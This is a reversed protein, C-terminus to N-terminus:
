LQATQRVPRVRLLRLAECRKSDDGVVGLAARLENQSLSASQNVRVREEGRGGERGGERERERM